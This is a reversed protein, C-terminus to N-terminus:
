IPRDRAIIQLVRGVMISAYTSRTPEASPSAMEAATAQQPYRRAYDYLKWGLHACIVVALAGLVFERRPLGRWLLAMISLISLAAFPAENLLFAPWSCYAEVVGCGSESGILRDYEEPQFILLDLWLYADFAIFLVLISRVAWGALRSWNM